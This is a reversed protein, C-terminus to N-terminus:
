INDRPLTFFFTTGSGVKSELWIRGGYSEVIKKVITLGVGTSEVKDRSHLTQFIKFIKEFYKENIGPGNDAVYIVWFKGEVRSGVKIMGQPKDMYKVANGILNQFVQIIRTEEMKVVPLSNEIRIEINSHSGLMSIVDSVVKNLDAEVPEETVRGIRSYQLIGDILSNMRQIRGALLNLMKNGEDDIKDQYDNSIWEALSSIGRLPAKLDHSVIYAFDELEQNANELQNNLRNSEDLQKKLEKEQEELKELAQMLVQNQQQIEEVFGGAAEQAMLTVWEEIARATVIGNSFPIKKALTIINGAGPKPQITFFDVLNKTGAIGVGMGTKSKFSPETFQDLDIAETGNDTIVAQLFQNGDKQIISFEAKGGEAYMLANRAIESVGTVFRTQDTLTLGALAAIRKARQRVLIIDYEQAIIVTIIKM